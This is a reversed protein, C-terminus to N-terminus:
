NRAERRIERWCNVRWASAVSKFFRNNTGVSTNMCKLLRYRGITSAWLRQSKPTFCASVLDDGCAASSGEPLGRGNACTAFTDAAAGDAVRAKGVFEACVM